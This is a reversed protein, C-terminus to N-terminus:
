RHLQPRFIFSIFSNFLSFFYFVELFNSHLKAVDTVCKDRLRQHSACPSLLLWTRIFLRMRTTCSLDFSSFVVDLVVISFIIGRYTPYGTVGNTALCGPSGKPHFVQREDILGDSCGRRRESVGTERDKDRYPLHCSLPQFIALCISFFLFLSFSNSMVLLYGVSICTWM